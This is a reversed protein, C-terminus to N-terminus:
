KFITFYPMIQDRALYERFYLYSRIIIYIVFLLKILRYYRDKQLKLTNIWFPFLILFLLNYYVFARGIMQLKYGWYGMVLSCMTYVVSLDYEKGNMRKHKLYLILLLFPLHMLLQGFGLSTNFDSQLYQTYRDFFIEGWYPSFLFVGLGFLSLSFFFFTHNKRYIYYFVCPVFMLVASYHVTSTLVICLGYKWMKNTYLYRFAFLLISAALYIRALNFSQFYFISVFAFLAIDWDITKEFYSLAKYTFFLTASSMMIIIFQPNQNILYLLKNILFFGPEILYLNPFGQGANVFIEKYQDTDAGINRFASFYFLGGFILFSLCQNPYYVIQKRSYKGDTFLYVYKKNVLVSAISVSVIIGIYLYMTNMDWIAGTHWQVNQDDFNFLEKLM